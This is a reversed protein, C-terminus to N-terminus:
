HRALQTRDDAVAGGTVDIRRGGVDFLSVREPEPLVRVEEGHTIAAAEKPHMRIVLTQDQSRMHIYVDSGLNERHVVQGAIGGEPAAVNRRPLMCANEPRFAIKIQPGACAEATIPLTHGHVDVLGDDRLRAPLVNIKPSGIFEAVALDTPQEYLETPSAIQLLRGDLMVAIRDSM